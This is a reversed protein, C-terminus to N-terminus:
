HATGGPAMNMRRLLEQRPPDVAEALPAAAEATGDALYHEAAARLEAKNPQFESALYPQFSHRDSQDLVHLVEHLQRAVLAGSAEGRESLLTTALQKARALLAPRVNSLTM